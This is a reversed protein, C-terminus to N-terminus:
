LRIPDSLPLSANSDGDMAGDYPTGRDAAESSSVDGHIDHVRQVQLCERTAETIRIPMGIGQSTTWCAQWEYSEATQVRAGGRLVEGVFM